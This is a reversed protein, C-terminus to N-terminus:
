QYQKYALENLLTPWIDARKIGVGRKMQEELSISLGKQAFTQAM